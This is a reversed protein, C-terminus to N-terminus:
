GRQRGDRRVDAVEQERGCTLSFPVGEAIKRKADRARASYCGAVIHRLSKNTQTQKM